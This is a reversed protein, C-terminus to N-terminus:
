KKYNHPILARERFPGLKLYDILEDSLDALSFFIVGDASNNRITNIQEVLMENTLGMFPALGCYINRNKGLKSRMENVKQDIWKADMSYAMPAIFDLYGRRAWLLWDQMKTERSKMTDPFIDASLIANKNENRIRKVFTTINNERWLRWNEQLKPDSEPTINLPDVGYNKKFESRCYDCYCSSEDLSTNEPYRIYDLQLGGLKPYKTIVEKYLSALFNQVEPRAPCVYLYGYETNSVKAGDHKKIAWDPHKKLIPGIDYKDTKGVYGVFFTHIWAHVEIGRKAGEEIFIKLPDFGKFQKKQSTISGPYITEGNWITEVYIQNFNGRQLRDLTKIIEEKNKEVPRYWVGRAEIFPSETCLFLIEQLLSDLSKFGKLINLSDRRLYYKDIQPTVKDIAHIRKEIASNDIGKVTKISKEYFAQIKDLKYQMEKGLCELDITIKINKDSYSVIAGVKAYYILFRSGEGHGSIVFGNDPISSNNQGIQTIRNNVVVAETGYQNTGTNKSPYKQNYIILEDPGRGGPYDAKTPNIWSIAHTYTQSFSNITFIFILPIFYLFPSLKPLSRM